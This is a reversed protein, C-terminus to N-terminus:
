DDLVEQAIASGVVADDDYFAVTQGAAIRMQPQTWCIANGRIEGPLVVGHASAQISLESNAVPNHAWTFQMCPQSPVLLDEFPGLLVEGAARDIKTVYRREEHGGLGLGKRQGISLLEVAQVNGIKENSKQDVLKGPTLAIRDGLFASRGGDSQIFCVNQSDPKAATRLDLKEALVRVEKKQLAGVPLLLRRLQRQGLMSLVYSQDKDHDVGRLLSYVGDASTVQAYHGTALLEIGLADARRFLKDFKIHRNCEVCPNPVSGNAYAAVYPDVVHENFEDGFNFVHHEIGLMDAVRRADNVDSVSCCGSDSKGGWLKLTIGIVNYGEQQLLAATVSSDVGGSMAVLVDTM